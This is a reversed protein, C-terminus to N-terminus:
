AKENNEGGYFREELYEAPVKYRITMYGKHALEDNLQQVIQGAAKRCIGLREAVDAISLLRM